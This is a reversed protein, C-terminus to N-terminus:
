AVRSSKLGRIWPMGLWSATSDLRKDNCDDCLLEEGRNWSHLDDRHYPECCGDCSRCRCPDDSCTECQCDNPTTYDPCSM